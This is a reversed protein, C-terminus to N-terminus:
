SKVEKKFRASESKIYKINRFRLASWDEDLSVIRIGHFGANNLVDWGKDRTVESNIKKSSKKPFCIWLIGDATLNHLAVPAFHEIEAVKTVFVIIFMYPCRQDVERDTIVGPLANTITKLFTEDSNLVAIRQYGKSNLKRILDEMM